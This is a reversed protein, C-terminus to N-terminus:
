IELGLGGHVGGAEAAADLVLLCQGRVVVVEGGLGGLLAGEVLAVELPGHLRAVFESPLVVLQACAELLVGGDTSEREIERRV